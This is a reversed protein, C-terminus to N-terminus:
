TLPDIGALKWPDNSTRRCQKFHWAENFAKPMPDPSERTTGNFRVTVWNADADAKEELVDASLTLVETQNAAQSREKIQEILDDRLEPVMWDRFPDLDGKDFAAQLSLFYQRAAHLFANQDPLVKEKPNGTTTFSPESSFSITHKTNAFANSVEHASAWGQKVRDLENNEPRAVYAPAQVAYQDSVKQANRRRQWLWWLGAIGLVLWLGNMGIGSTAGASANASGGVLHALGFGAAVGALPALWSHKAPSASPEAPRAAAAGLQNQSAAPSGAQQSQTSSPSSPTAPPVSRASQIENSSRLAPRTRSVGSRRGSGARAAEVTTMLSSALFSAALMLQMVSQLRKKNMYKGRFM